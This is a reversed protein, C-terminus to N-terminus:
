YNEMLDIRIGGIVIIFPDRINNFVKKIPTEDLINLKNNKYTFIIQDQLIKQYVGKKGIKESYYKIAQKISCNGDLIIEEHTGRDIFDINYLFDTINIISGDKIGNEELTNNFSIPKHNFTFYSNLLKDKILYSKADKPCKIKGNINMSINDNNLYLQWDINGFPNYYKKSKINLKQQLSFIESDKQKILEKLERIRNEYTRILNKINPASINMLFNTNNDMM